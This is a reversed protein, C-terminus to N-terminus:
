ATQFRADTTVKRTAYAVEIGLTVDAYDSTGLGTLLFNPRHPVQARSSRPQIHVPKCDDEAEGPIAIIWHCALVSRRLISSTAPRPAFGGVQHRGLPRRQARALEDARGLLDLSGSAQWGSGAGIGSGIRRKSLRARRGILGGLGKSPPGPSCRSRVQGEMRCSM